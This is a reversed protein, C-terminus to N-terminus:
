AMARRVDPQDLVEDLTRQLREFLQEFESHTYCLAPAFGLIGDAFARFVLGHRWSAAAVRGGLDLAPEFRVRDVKDSVLELAGLLGRSRADGVLPHSLLDQLGSEFHRAVQQGNALIGGEQYLRIM